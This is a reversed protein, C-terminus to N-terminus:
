SGYYRIHLECVGCANRIVFPIYDCARGTPTESTVSLKYLQTEVVWRDYKCSVDTMILCFILHGYGSRITEHYM